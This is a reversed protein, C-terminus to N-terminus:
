PPPPVPAVAVSVSADLVPAIVEVVWFAIPEPYVLGGDTEIVGAPAVKWAKTLPDGTVANLM